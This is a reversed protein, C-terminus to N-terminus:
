TAPEGKEIIAEIRSEGSSRGLAFAFLMGGLCVM